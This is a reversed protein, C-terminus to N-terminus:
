VSSVIVTEEVTHTSNVFADLVRGEREVLM